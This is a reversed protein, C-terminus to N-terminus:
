VCVVRTERDFLMNTFCNMTTELGITSTENSSNRNVGPTIKDSSLFNLILSKQLKKNLTNKTHPYSSLTPLSLPILNVQLNDRNFTSLM